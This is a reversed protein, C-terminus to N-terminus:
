PRLASAPANVWATEPRPMNLALVILISALALLMLVLVVIAATLWINKKHM